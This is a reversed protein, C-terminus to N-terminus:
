TVFRHPSLLSHIVILSRWFLSGSSQISRCSKHAILVQAYFEHLPSRMNFCMATLMKAQPTLLSMPSAIRPSGPWELSQPLTICLSVSFPRQHCIDGYSRPCILIIPLILLSVLTSPFQAFRSHLSLLKQRDSHHFCQCRLARVRESDTHISAVMAALGSLSSEARCVVHSM